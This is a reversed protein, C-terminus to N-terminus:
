LCCQLKTAGFVTGTQWKAEINCRFLRTKEAIGYEFLWAFQLCILHGCHQELDLSAMFVAQVRGSRDIPKWRGRFLRITVLQAMLELISALGRAIKWSLIAVLTKVVSCCSKVQPVVVVPSCTGQVVINYCWCPQFSCLDRSSFISEMLLPM